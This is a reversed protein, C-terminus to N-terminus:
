PAFYERWADDADKRGSRPLDPPGAAAIHLSVYLEPM